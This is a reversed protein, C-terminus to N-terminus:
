CYSGLDVVMRRTKGPRASPTDGDLAYHCRQGSFYGQLSRLRTELDRASCFPVFDLYERSITGVLNEVFPHSIPLYPVFRLHEVSFIGLVVGLFKGRGSKPHDSVPVAEATTLLEGGIEGLSKVSDSCQKCYHLHTTVSICPATSLSGSAYEVLLDPEPHRNIM